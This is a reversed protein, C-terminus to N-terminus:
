GAGSMARLAVLATAIIGGAAVLAAAVSLWAVSPLEKAVDVVSFVLAWVAAMTTVFLVVVSWGSVTSASALVLFPLSVVLAAVSIGLRARRQKALTDPSPVAETVFIEILGAIVDDLM